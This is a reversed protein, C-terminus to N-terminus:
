PRESLLAYVSGAVGLAAYAGTIAVLLSAARRRPADDITRLATLGSITDLSDVLLGLRQWRARAPPDGRLYGVGIALARAGFVRTLYIVEPTQLEGVGAARLNAGPSVLAAGGWAIRGAAAVVYAHRLLAPQRPDPRLEQVGYDM